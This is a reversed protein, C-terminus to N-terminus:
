AVQRVPVAALGVVVTQVKGFMPQAETRIDIMSPFTVKSFDEFCDPDLTMEVLQLGYGTMRYSTGKVSDAKSRSELPVLYSLSAMHYPKCVGSKDSVGQSQQVSVALVKM